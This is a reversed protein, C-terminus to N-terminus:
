LTKLHQKLAKALLVYANSVTKYGKAEAVGVLSIEDRVWALALEVEDATYDVRRIHTSRAKAVEILKNM